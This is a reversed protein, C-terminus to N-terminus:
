VEAVRYKSLYGRPTVMFPGYTFTQSNGVIIITQMDVPHETMAALTTITTQEGERMARRVIGVPTQPDKLPLLLEQVAKLQWHRKKSQHNYLVLVFDGAAAAKLRKQIVEWPTLLDSLSIVAFDIFDAAAKAMALTQSELAERVGKRRGDIVPRIGIKPLTGRLRKQPKM